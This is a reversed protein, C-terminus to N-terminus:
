AARELSQVRAKEYELADTITSMLRSVADADDASFTLGSPVNAFAGSLFNTLKACNLLTESPLDDSVFWRLAPMPPVAPKSKTSM